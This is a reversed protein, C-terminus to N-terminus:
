SHLWNTVNSVSIGHRAAAEAYSADDEHIGVDVVAAGPKMVYENCVYVRAATTHTVRRSADTESGVASDLDQVQLVLSGGVASAAREAWGAPATSCRSRM